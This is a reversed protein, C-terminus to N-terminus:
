QSRPLIIGGSQSALAEGVLLLSGALLVPIRHRPPVSKEEPNQGVPESFSADFAGQLSLFARYRSRRPFRLSKLLVLPDVSRSSAVPVLFIEQAIEELVTLMGQPDKDALAGFILRCKENGFEERWVGVLCRAAHVNHAGDLILNGGRTRQFRGPWSVDALGKLTAEEGPYFGGARLLAIALAANWRQHSGALGLPVDGPLPERIWECPAGIEVAAAALAEEAEPEQPAIVSPVSPRLIGAKERAIEALSEGLWETHDLAIPTIACAVKPATNTADLRGGLGTEVVVAECSAHSFLDFALATVLEFFTPLDEGNWEGTAERLRLIGGELQANEVPGGNIRVREAFDVLHPSTYLGTRYGATRLVSEAFACVSGKGNTGAVHLCRLGKEPNGLVALLREMRALGPQIGRGQTSLLWDLPSNNPSMGPIFASFSVPKFVLIVATAV